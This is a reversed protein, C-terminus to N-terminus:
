IVLLGHTDYWSGGEDLMARSLAIISAVIGDIRGTSKKKTPVINDNQDQRVACNSAMWSLIPNGGHHLRGARLLKEFEVTAPGMCAVTQRVEVVNFGDEQGLQQNCLLEANWPDYGIELIHFRQSDRKVQERIFRYDIVDGDTLTLLGQKDWFSYSVHDQREKETISDEPLFFRPVLYYEEDMPFLLAVAAIDRKRALDIGVYCDRGELLREDFPTSGQDWVLSSLWCDTHNVWQNLRYRRFASEKRPSEKAERFDEFFQDERITTGFSPNAQRWVSPNTWDAETAAACIYAFFSPDNISGNLIGLAYDHQEYCISERDVGATTISILLPQVRSATAYRLADWLDRTKQAHLEDFIIAHANLGENSYADASIAHYFSNTRSDVIRKTSKVVNVRQSLEWSAAVMNAAEHFVIGAQERDAAAGYIQARPEGDAILLYLALGGCLTSNHTPILGQGALYLHSPSDVAICRVPVSVCQEVATICRVSRADASLSEVASSAVVTHNSAGDSCSLTAAIEHTTSLVDARYPDQNRTVWLHDADAVVSTGDCFSIRYCPRDHLVEFAHVVRSPQGREDFVKDGERIDGMTKWGATTLIPTDVALAKGNKKPVEIYAKRFRRTRDERKWGFLPMVIDDRQWDLLKFPQGAWQGLTHRLFTEFFEVVFRGAREDFYCGEAIAREDADNRIWRKSSAKKAM